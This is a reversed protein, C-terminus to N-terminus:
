NANTRLRVVATPDFEALGQRLSTMFVTQNQLARLESLVKFSILNSKRKLTWGLRPVGFYAMVKDAQTADSLRPAVPVLDVPYSYLQMQAGQPLAFIDMVPKGATDRLGAYGFFVSRSMGWRPGPMAQHVFTKAKGVVEALYDSSKDIVQQYTNDGAAAAVTHGADSTDAALNFIGTVNAKAATGDGTFGRVDLARAQARALRMGVYNALGVALDSALMSNDVIIAKSWWALKGAHSKFTLDEDDITDGLDPHYVDDTEDNAEVATFTEAGTEEAPVLGAFVGYQELHDIIGTVADDRILFGGEAGSGPNIALEKTQDAPLVGRVGLIIRGFKEAAARTPFMGSFRPNTEAERVLARLAERERTGDTELSARCADIDKAHEAFQRQTKESLESFRVDQKKLLAVIEGLLQTQQDEAPSMPRAKEMVNADPM